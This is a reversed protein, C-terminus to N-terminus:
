VQVSSELLKLSFRLCSFNNGQIKVPLMQKGLPVCFLPTYRTCVCLHRPSLYCPLWAEWPSRHPPEDQQPRCERSGARNTM